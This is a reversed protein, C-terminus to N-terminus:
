LPRLVELSYLTSMNLTLYGLSLTEFLTSEMVHLLDECVGQSLDWLICAQVRSLRLLLYVEVLYSILTEKYLLAQFKQKNAYGM